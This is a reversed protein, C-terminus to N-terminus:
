DISILWHCSKNILENKDHLGHAMLSLVRDDSEYGSHAEIPNAIKGIGLISVVNAVNININSIESCLRSDLYKEKYRFPIGYSLIDNPDSFAIVKTKNVFRHKYKTGGKVCYDKDVNTIEPLTRGLQLLQLQNALMFLTIEKNQYTKHLQALMPYKKIVIPDDVLGAIRELADITIRSGLSHTILFYQDDKVEEIVNEKIDRGCMKDSEDPFDKWETTAMWCISQIVSSLIDVQLPGLYIMPDAFADNIATKVINSINTRQSTYIESRDYSLVEKEKDTLKSWTLEYFLLERSKDKSMLQTLRLNAIEKRSAFDSNVTIDKPDRSILELDLIKALNEMLINSYGPVHQKIGHIMLVKTTGSKKKLSDAIGKFGSSWIKCERKDIHDKHSLVGTALEVLIDKKFFSSLLLLTIITFFLYKFFNLM